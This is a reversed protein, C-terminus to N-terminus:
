LYNYTKSSSPNIDDRKFQELTSINEILTKFHEMLPIVNDYVTKFDQYDVDRYTGHAIDNRPEVLKKDIFNQNKEFHNIELGLLQVIDKLVRFKLNSKTDIVDKDNIKCPKDKNYILEEMLAICEEVSKGKNLRKLYSLAVLNIQVRQMPIKRTSVYGVYISSASKVFGEWHAYGLAIGGRVLPKLQTAKKNADVIFKYDILEKKRWSIDSDLKDQLENLTRVKM